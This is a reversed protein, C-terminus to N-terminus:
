KLKKAEAVCIPDGSKECLATAEDAERIAGPHDGRQKALRALEVHARGQVWDAADPKLAIRLDALADEGRGLM